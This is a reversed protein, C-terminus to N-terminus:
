KPQRTAYIKRNPNNVLCFTTPVNLDNFVQRYIESDDFLVDIKHEICYHAKAENWAKTDDTWPMGNDWTVIGSPELYDVISFYHTYEVGLKKLQHEVEPSQKMGTIVHVEHGARKMLTAMTCYHDFTDLVGHLDFGYKICSFNRPVYIKREWNNHTGKCDSLYMENTKPHQQVQYVNFYNPVGVAIVEGVNHNTINHMAYELRGYM